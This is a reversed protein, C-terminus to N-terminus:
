KMICKRPVFTHSHERQPRSKGIGSDKVPAPPVVMDSVFLVDLRTFRLSSWGFFLARFFFAQPGLAAEPM